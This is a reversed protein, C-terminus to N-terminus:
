DNRDTSHSVMSQTLARRQKLELHSRTRTRSNGTFLFRRRATQLQRAASRKINWSATELCVLTSVHLQGTALQYRTYRTPVPPGLGSSCGGCGKARPRKLWFLARPKEQARGAGGHPCRPAGRASRRRSSTGPRARAATRGRPRPEGRSKRHRGYSCSFRLAERPARSAKLSNESRPSATM